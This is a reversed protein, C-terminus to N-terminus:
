SGSHLSPSNILLLVRLGTHCWFGAGDFLGNGTRKPIVELANLATRVFQMVRDVVNHGGAAAVLGRIRKGRQEPRLGRCGRESSRQFNKRSEDGYGHLRAGARREFRMDRIQDASHGTFRGRAGVGPAQAALVM